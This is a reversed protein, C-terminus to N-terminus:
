PRSSTYVASPHPPQHQHHALGAGAHRHTGSNANGNEGGGAEGVLGRRLGGRDYFGIAAAGDKAVGFEARERGDNDYMAMKAAGDPAVGIVIRKRGDLDTLVLRQATLTRAAPKAAMAVGTALQIMLAGGAAGGALTVTTYLWFTRGTMMNSDESKIRTALAPSRSANMQPM